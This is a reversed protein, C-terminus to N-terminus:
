GSQQQPQQNQIPQPQQNPIPQPQQTVFQPQLQPNVVLPQNPVPQFGFNPQQSTGMTIINSNPVFQPRSVMMTPQQFPNNSYIPRLGMPQLGGRMMLNTNNNPLVRVFGQQRFQPMQVQGGPRMIGPTNNAYNNLNGFLGGKSNNIENSILNKLEAAKTQDERALYEMWEQLGEKRTIPNSIEYDDNFFKRRESYSASNRFNEDKKQCCELISSVPFLYAVASVILAAVSEKDFNADVGNESTLKIFIVNGLSYIFPVLEIVEFMQECIDSALEQPKKFRRLLLIKDTWYMFFIGVLSIPMGIPFLCAYFATLMLTKTINSYKQAM